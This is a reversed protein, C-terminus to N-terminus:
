TLFLTKFVQSILETVLPTAVDIDGVGVVLFVLQQKPICMM